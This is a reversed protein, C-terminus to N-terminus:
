EMITSLEGEEKGDDDNDDNIEEYRNYLTITKDNLEIKSEKRMILNKWLHHGKSKKDIDEENSVNIEEDNILITSFRNKNRNIFLYEEPISNVEDLASLNKWIEDRNDDGNNNKNGEIKDNEDKLSLKDEIDSSLHHFKISRHNRLISSKVPKLNIEISKLKTDQQTKNNIIELLEKSLENNNDSNLSKNSEYDMDNIEIVPITYDEEEEENYDDYEDVDDGGDEYDDLELSRPAKYEYDDLELGKPAKYDYDGDGDGDGDGDDDDFLNRNFLEDTEDIEEYNIYNVDDDFVNVRKSGISVSDMGNEIGLNKLFKYRLNENEENEIQENSKYFKISSTRNRFSFQSSNEDDTSEGSYENNNNNSNNNGPFPELKNSKEIISVKGVKESEILSIPTNIENSWNHISTGVITESTPLLSGLSRKKKISKTNNGNNNKNYISLDTLSSKNKLFNRITNFKKNPSKTPSNNTVYVPQHLESM